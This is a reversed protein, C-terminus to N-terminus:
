GIKPSLLSNNYRAGVNNPLSIGRDIWAKICSPEVKTSAGIIKTMKKVTMKHLPADAGDLWWETPHPFTLEAAGMVTGNWRVVERMDDHNVIVAEGTRRPLGKTTIRAVEM